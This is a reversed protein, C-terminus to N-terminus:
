AGHNPCTFGNGNSNVTSGQHPCVRSLTVFTTEATRVVAVPTGKLNFTAVGGVAALEPHDSINITSGISTPGTMDTSACAALAVLAAAAAAQSVFARRSMCGACEDGINNKAM